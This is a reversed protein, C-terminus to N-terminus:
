EEGRAYEAVCECYACTEARDEVGMAREQHLISLYDLSIQGRRRGNLAHGGGPQAHLREQLESLRM